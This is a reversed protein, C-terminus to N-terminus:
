VSNQAKALGPHIVQLGHSRLREAVNRAAEPALPVLVKVGSSASDVSIIPQGLHWNGIRSVDEDIFYDPLRGLESVAWSAGIATGFIAFPGSSVESKACEAFEHLWALASEAILLANDAGARRATTEPSDLRCLVSLEKFVVRDSIWEIVFGARGLIETISDATFHSCHDFIALDFPNEGLNPVQIFVRGNDHLYTSLTRLYESPNPIHELFHIMSILDYRETGVNKLDTHFNGVQPLARIAEAHQEDWELGSLSWQPFMRHFSRLMNGNGCGIDLLAGTENLTDQHLLAEVVRMSRESALPGSLDFSVQEKGDSQPYM